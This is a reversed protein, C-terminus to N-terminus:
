ICNLRCKCECLQHQVLFITKSVRLILHFEKTNMNKVKNPVCVLAYPDYIFNYSGGCKNIRVLTENSNINVLTPRAQFREIKLSLCLIPEQSNSILSVSFSVLTCVTLLEIFM